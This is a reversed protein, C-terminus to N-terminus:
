TNIEIEKNQEHEILRKKFEPYDKIGVSAGSAPAHGGANGKLNGLALKLLKNMNKKCDQRRASITMEDNVQQVIILTQNPYLRQSLATSLISKIKYKSKIEYIILQSDNYTEVNQKASTIYHELEQKVINYQQLNATAQELSNSKLILNFCHEAENLSEAFSILQTVTGLPTDIPNPQPRINYKKYVKNMFEPWAPYAMDGIIGIACIWDLHALNTIRSLLDYSFKASCYRDPPIGDFILQPKLFITKESSIDHEIIHHDFVVLSAFQEIKKIQDPGSDVTKDTTILININHQQLLNIKEDSIFHEKRENILFLKVSHGLQKLSEVIIKGSTTGDPDTDHLLAINDSPKISKFFQDSRALLSPNKITILM